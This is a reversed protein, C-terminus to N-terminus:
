VRGFVLGGVEEKFYTRLDPDRITPSDPTIGELKETIVYQHKVAVIPIHVGSKAGLQRSWIGACNVIKECKFEGKTTNVGTIRRNLSFFDLVECNELITVGHMRAGKAIAMTIDSPSAQGDSPLFSAGVLGKIDLLPFLDVAQKPSLIDMALGFSKATTASRNFEIM